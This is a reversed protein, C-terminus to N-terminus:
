KTASFLDTIDKLTADGPFVDKLEKVMSLIESLSNKKGAGFDEERSKIEKANGMHGYPAKYIGNLVSQIFISEQVGINKSVQSLFDSHSKIVAALTAKFAYKENLTRENSYQKISVGILLILPLTLSLRYIVINLEPIGHVDQFMARLQCWLVIIAVVLVVLWAGSSWRLIKERKQFANALGTDTILATIKEVAEKNLNINNLSEQAQNKFDDTQKKNIEIAGLQLKSNEHFSKIETFISNSQKQLENSQNLIAQLGSDPDEIKTQISIFNEYASQVLAIKEQAQVFQVNIDSLTQQASSKTNEIDDKLGKASILLTEIEGEKGEVRGKTGEFKIAAEELQTITTQIKELNNKIETLLVVSENRINEVALSKERVEGAVKEVDLNRTEFAKFAADYRLNLSSINELLDKAKNYKTKIERIEEDEM